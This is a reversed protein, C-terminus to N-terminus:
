EEARAVGGYSEQDQGSDECRSKVGGGARRGLGRSENSEGIDAFGPDLVKASFLEFGDQLEIGWVGDEELGGPFADGARGGEAGEELGDHGGEVAVEREVALVEFSGAIESVVAAVELFGQGGNGAPSSDGGFAAVYEDEFVLWVAAPLDNLVDPGTGRWGACLGGM